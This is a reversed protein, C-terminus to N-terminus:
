DYIPEVNGEPRSGGVGGPTPIIGERLRWGYNEGGSSDAPQYNIEERRTQGVDGIWLDGNARDFSSRFPNRLGYSWIEDDGNVGVFPNDEPIAYNRPNDPPFDDGHGDIRLMKGLLNDTTDQANGTGATHGTGNDNGGGGDGTAIYLYGDNPGFDIWGGNHNPQPQNFSLIE